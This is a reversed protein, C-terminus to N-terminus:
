PTSRSEQDAPDLTGPEFVTGGCEPCGAARLAAVSTVAARPGVLHESGCGRCRYRRSRGRLDATYLPGDYRGAQEDTEAAVELRWHDSTGGLVGAGLYQNAAPTLSRVALGLSALTSQLDRAIRPPKRGFHLHVDWGAGPRLGELARTLFLQAGQLTYPPDTMAATARGRLPAPMPERLDHHVVQSPVSADALGSRVADLVPESVDVVLLEGVLRVGLAEQVRAVAVSILDDDGVALLSPTPLTGDRCMGLVRRVKTEATAFAQDLTLDVDPGGALDEELRAVVPLLAEPLPDQQPITLEPATVPRVALADAVAAGTTTLGAPRHEDLLGQARLEGLVASALPVPLRAQAAVANTSRRTGDALAALVRLVGAEGEALRTASAVQTLVAFPAGTTQESQEAEM